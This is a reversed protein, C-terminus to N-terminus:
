DPARSRLGTFADRVFRGDLGTFEDVPWGGEPEAMPQLMEGPTNTPAGPAFVADAPDVAAAGDVVGTKKSAM